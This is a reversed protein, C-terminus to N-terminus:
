QYGGPGDQQDGGRCQSHGAALRHLRAPADAAARRQHWRDSDRGSGGDFRRHGHQAHVARPGAHGRHHIETRPTASIAIPSTSPSERSASRACATPSCRFIWRGPRISQDPEKKVSALQDEYVGKSDHLLRGILTSKGDDVSGATTFRLLEKEPEAQLFLEFSTVSEITQRM